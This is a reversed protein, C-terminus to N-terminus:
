QHDCAAITYPRCGENSDYNGGTVLGSKKFYSWAAQPYGGNCGFGCLKCCALYFFFM